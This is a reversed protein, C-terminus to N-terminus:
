RIVIAADRVRPTMEDLAVLPTVRSSTLAEELERMFQEDAVTQPQHAPPGISPQPAAVAAAAPRPRSASQRRDDIAQGIGVTVLLGAAAALSLWRRIPPAGTTAAAGGGSVPFRLIRASGRRGASRQIRRLIRRRQRVLRWAPMAEDFADEATAAIRHLGAQLARVRAACRPCGALHANGAAPNGGDANVLMRVLERETLHRSGRRRWEFAPLEALKRDVWTRM